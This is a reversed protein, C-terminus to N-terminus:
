KKVEEMELKNDKIDDTEKMHEEEQPAEVLNQAVEEEMQCPVKAADSSFAENKDSMSTLLHELEPESEQPKEELSPETTDINSEEVVQEIKNKGESEEAKNENEKPIEVAEQEISQPSIDAVTHEEKFSQETKEVEFERSQEM